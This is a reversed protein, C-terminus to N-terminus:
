RTSIEYYIRAETKSSTSVQFQLAKDKVRTEIRGLRKGDLALKWVKLTRPRAHALKIWGTGARVLYPTRGWETLIELSHNRFKMGTNKMDTLHALVIRGSEVLPNGDLSSAWVAAWTKKIDVTLPGAARKTGEPGAVAATAPTAIVLVGANTDLTVEGTDSQYIGKAPDTPNGAPIMGRAKLDSLATERAGKEFGKLLPIELRGLDPAAVGVQAGIRVCWGLLDLDGGIRQHASKMWEAQEGTVAVIHNAPAADGRLFLMIGARDSALNLPDSANDFDGIPSPNFMSDLGHSYTFRWLVSWDQIAAFAGML